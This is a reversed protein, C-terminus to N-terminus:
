RQPSDGVVAVECFAVYPEYAIDVRYTLSEMYGGVFANRPILDVSNDRVREAHLEVRPM